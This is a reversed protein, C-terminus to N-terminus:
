NISARWACRVAPHLDGYVDDEVLTFHYEEALKLLRHATAASMSAGTPNHLVSNVFFPAAPPADASQRARDSRAMPGRPVAVLKAGFAGPARVDRVLGSRRGASYRRARRLSACGADVGQTVGCTTVIQAPNAAIDFHALRRSLQERLASARAAGGYSLLGTVARAGSPVCQRRRGSRM